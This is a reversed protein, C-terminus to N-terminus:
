PTIKITGTVGDSVGADDTVVVSWGYTTSRLPSWAYSVVPSSSTLETGDGFRFLYSVISGDPDHSGSADFRVLQGGKAKAPVTAEADPADSSRVASSAPASTVGDDDVVTLTPEWAGAGFTHTVIASTTEDDIVGDGEWDWRYAAVTSDDSSASGDLTVSLPAAGISISASVSAVPADNGVGNVAALANVLGAGCDIVACGPLPTATDAIVHKIEDPTLTPDAQLLLAAVGAVHPAAMSTGLMATYYPWLEPSVIHPNTPDTPDLPLQNPFSAV